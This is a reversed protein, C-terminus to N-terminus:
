AVETVTQARWRRVPCYRLTRAITRVYSAGAGDLDTWITISTGTPVRAAIARTWVGAFIGVVAPADERADSFRTALTLFDADGEAVWVGVDRVLEAAPTDDALDSGALMLRALPDAMVLGGCAYGAPALVKFEPPGDCIRRSRLSGLAGQEDYLGM